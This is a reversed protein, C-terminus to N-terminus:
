YTVGSGLETLTTRFGDEYGNNTATLTYTIVADGTPTTDDATISTPYVRVKLTSAVSTNALEDVTPYDGAILKLTGLQNGTATLLNWDGNEDKAEWAETYTVHTYPLEAEDLIESTFSLDVNLGLDGSITYVISYMDREDGGNQPDITIIKETGSAIWIPVVPSSSTIATQHEVRITITGDATGFNTEGTAFVNAAFLFAALLAFLKMANKM